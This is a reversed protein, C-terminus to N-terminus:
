FANIRSLLEESLPSISPDFYNILIGKEDVLYKSFNWTPAQDNWGNAKKSSLWLFVENQQPGKVVSSKVALPFSVGYNVQCFGAIDEDTGKEQEGFDNAPFAIITLKDKHQQYLLQLDSYQATYGCDSATNVLLIKRGKLSEFSLEKGNNLRTALSYFSLPAPVPAPNTEIKRKSGLAKTLRMLLPYFNKLLKQRFTM